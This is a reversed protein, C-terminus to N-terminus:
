AAVMGEKTVSIPTVGIRLLSAKPDLKFTYSAKGPAAPEAARGPVAILGGSLAALALFSVPISELKM